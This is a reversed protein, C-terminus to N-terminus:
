LHCPSPHLYPLISRSLGRSCLFSGEFRPERVRRIRERSGEAGGRVIDRMGMVLEFVALVTLKTCEEWSGGEKM